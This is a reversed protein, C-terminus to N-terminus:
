KFDAAQLKTLEANFLFVSNSNYVRGILYFFVFLHDIVVARVFTWKSM